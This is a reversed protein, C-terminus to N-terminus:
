NVNRVGGHWVGTVQAEGAEERVTESVNADVVDELVEECAAGLHFIGGLLPKKGILFEARRGVILRETLVYRVGGEKVGFERSEEM